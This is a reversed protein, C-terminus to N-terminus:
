TTQSTVNGDAPFCTTDEGKAKEEKETKTDSKALVLSIGEFPNDKPPVTTV